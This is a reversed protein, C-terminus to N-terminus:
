YDEIVKHIIINMFYITMFSNNKDNISSLIIYTLLLIMLKYNKEDM